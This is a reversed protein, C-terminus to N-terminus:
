SDNDHGSPDIVINVPDSVTCSRLRDYDITIQYTVLM